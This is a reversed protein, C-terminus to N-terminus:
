TLRGTGDYSQAEFTETRPLARQLGVWAVGALAIAGLVPCAASLSPAFLAVPLMAGPWVWALALIARETVSANGKIMGDRFLIAAAAALAPMDYNHSYPVALLDLAVVLAVGVAKSSAPAHRLRRSVTWCVAICGVAVLAQGSWALSLPVGLARLAMFPSTFNVQAPTGAWPESMIGAMKAGTGGFFAVWAEWGFLLGAAAAMGLCAAAGWALTLWRGSAMLHFPVLLGMQPKVALAGLMLGAMRPRTATTMLGALLMGGAFAGTQGSLANEWVAPAFLCAVAVGWPLLAERTRLAAVFAFLGGLTWLAFSWGLPLMSVPAAILLMSPPYGWVQRVFDEGFQARIAQAYLERDFLVYMREPALSGAFWMNAFGRMARAYRNVIEESNPIELVWLVLLILMPPILALLM